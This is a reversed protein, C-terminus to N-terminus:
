RIRARGKFIKSYTPFSARTVFNCPVPPNEVESYLVMEDPRNYVNAKRARPFSAHLQITLDRLEIRYGFRLCM